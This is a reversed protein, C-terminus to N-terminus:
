WKGIYGNEALYAIRQANNMKKCKLAEKAMANLVQDERCKWIDSPNKPDYVIYDGNNADLDLEWELAGGSIADLDVEEPNLEIRELKDSM